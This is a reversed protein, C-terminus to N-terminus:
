VALYEKIFDSVDKRKLAKENAADAAGDFVWWGRKDKCVTLDTAAAEPFEGTVDDMGREVNGTAANEGGAGVTAPAAPVEADQPPAPTNDDVVLPPAPAVLVFRSGFKAILDEETVVTGGRKTM